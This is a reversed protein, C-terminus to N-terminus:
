TLYNKLETTAERLQCVERTLRNFEEFFLELEKESAVRAEDIQRSSARTSKLGQEELRSCIRQKVRLEREIETNSRRLDANKRRQIALENELEQILPSGKKSALVRLQSQAEKELSDIEVNIDDLKKKVARIEDEIVRHSTSQRCRAIEAKKSSIANVLSELYATDDRGHPANQANGRNLTARRVYRAARSEKEISDVLDKLQSYVFTNGVVVPSTSKQKM